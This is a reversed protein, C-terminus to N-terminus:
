PINIKLKLLKWEGERMVYEYDFSVTYPKTPFKGKAMLINLNRETRISPTEEFDARAADVRNLVPLVVKKKDTYVKFAEKIEEITYTVKFDASSDAYLDSFDGSAVSEAFQSTTEKVLTEVESESPASDAAPKTTPASATNSNNTSQDNTAFDALDLNKNCNCGLAVTAVVALAVLGSLMVNKGFIIEHVLNKM